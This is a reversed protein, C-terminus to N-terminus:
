KGCQCGELRSRLKGLAEAEVQRVREKHLGLGAAIAALTWPGSGAGGVGYRLGVVHRERETLRRWKPLGADGERTTVIRVARAADEAAEMKALPAPEGSCQETWGATGNNSDRFEAPQVHRARWRAECRLHRSVSWRVAQVAYTSFAHGKSPDFRDVARLLARLGIAFCDEDMAARSGFRHAIAFRVLGLNAAVLEGRCREAGATDGASVAARLAHFDAVNTHGGRLWRAEHTAAVNAKRPMPLAKSTPM